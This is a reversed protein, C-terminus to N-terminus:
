NWNGVFFNGLFIVMIVLFFYIVVLDFWYQIEQFVINGDGLLIDGVDFYGSNFVFVNGEVSIFIVQVGIKDVMGIVIIDVLWVYFGFQIIVIIYFGEFLYFMFSYVVEYKM